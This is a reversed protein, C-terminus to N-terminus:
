WRQLHVFPECRVMLAEDGAGAVWQFDYCPEPDQGGM